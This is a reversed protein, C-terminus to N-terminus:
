IPETIQTRKKYLKTIITFNRKTEHNNDEMQM